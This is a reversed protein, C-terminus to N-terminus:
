ILTTKKGKLSAELKSNLDVKESEIASIRKNLISMTEIINAVKQNLDKIENQILGIQDLTWHTVGEEKIPEILWNLVNLVFKRNDLRNLGINEDNTFIDVDGMAVVKGKGYESCASLVHAEETEDHIWNNSHAQFSESWSERNCRALPRSFKNLVLSCSGGIILERVQHTISHEIIEQISLVSSCNKNLENREKIINKNFLVGFNKSIDDLNTRQIYDGGYESLLLLGGGNRVFHLIEKIEINSFYENIPNGIVLIDVDRLIKKSIDKADNNRIKVNLRKLLNSFESFDDESINLMENHILDFLLTSKKLAPM